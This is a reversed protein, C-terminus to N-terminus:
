EIVPSVMRGSNLARSSARGSANEESAEAASEGAPRQCVMSSSVPLGLDMTSIWCAASPLRVPLTTSIRCDSWPGFGSHVSHSPSRLSWGMVPMVM